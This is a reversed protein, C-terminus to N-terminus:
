LLEIQLLRDHGALDKSLSIKAAHFYDYALSLVAMGQSAEIELLMMGGPFLRTPAMKLLRRIMALGDAGGDLALAPEHEYVTLRRLTATPIYPLNACILDFRSKEGPLLDCHVFEIRGAVNHRSGNRRAIELAQASIDTAILRAEPQHVALAIAICASGTGVDAIVRRSPHATLWGLAREVLLETEPRPILVDPTVEFELGYFSWHGLVYPLPEGAELRSVAEEISALQPQTLPAEPHAILWVRPKDLIHALLVQTDLDATESVKSLRQAIKRRLAALQTM